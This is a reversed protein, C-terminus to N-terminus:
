KIYIHIKCTHRHVLLLIHQIGQYQLYLCNGAAKASFQVQDEPVREFGEGEM